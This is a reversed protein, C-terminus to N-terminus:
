PGKKHIPNLQRLAVSGRYPSLKSKIVLDGPTVPVCEISRLPIFLQTSKQAVRLNQGSSWQEMCSNKAWGCPVLAGKKLNTSRTAEFIISRFWFFGLPNKNEHINPEIFHWLYSMKLFISSNTGRSSINNALNYGKNNIYTM